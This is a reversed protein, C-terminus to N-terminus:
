ADNVGMYGAAYVVRPVLQWGDEGGDVMSLFRQVLGSRPPLHACVPLADKNQATSAKFPM